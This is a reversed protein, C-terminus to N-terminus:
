TTIIPHFHFIIHVEIFENKFTIFCIQVRLFSPLRQVKINKHWTRNTTTSKWIFYGDGGVKMIEKSTKKQHFDKNWVRNIGHLCAFTPVCSLVTNNKRKWLCLNITIHNSPVCVVISISISYINNDKHRWSM